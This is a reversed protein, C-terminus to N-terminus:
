EVEVRKGSTLPFILAIASNLWSSIPLTDVEPAIPLKSGINNFRREGVGWVYACDTALDKKSDQSM